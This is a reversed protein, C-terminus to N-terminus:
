SKRSQFRERKLFLLNTLTRAYETYSKEQSLWKELAAFVRKKQDDHGLMM